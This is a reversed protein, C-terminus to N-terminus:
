TSTIILQAGPHKALVEPTTVKVLLKLILIRYKLHCGFSHQSLKNQRDRGVM